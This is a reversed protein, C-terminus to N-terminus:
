RTDDVVRKLSQYAAVPDAQGVIASGCIIRQAGAAQVRPITDRNMSGDVSIMCEPYESRVWSIAELVSENFPLGQAGITKIGMLQVYDAHALYPPLAGLPTEGHLSVGVSLRSQQAFVALEEVSITEIHFVVMDAGAAEWAEAMPVPNAVMLDVELTFRDTYMRVEAPAGVPQVPWSVAPVFVGDVIDLHYESSFSLQNCTERVQEASAPIVAPVIVPISISM